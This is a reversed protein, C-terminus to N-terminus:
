TRLVFTARVRQLFLPSVAKADEFRLGPADASPPDYKLLWGTPTDIGGANNKVARAFRLLAGDQRAPLPLITLPDSGSVGIGDDLVNIGSDVLAAFQTETPIKGKLFYQKLDNRNTTAM